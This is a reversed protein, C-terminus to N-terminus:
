CFWPETLRPREAVKGPSHLPGRSRSAAAVRASVELFTAEISASEAVRAAVLEAIDRQLRDVAPDASTWTYTLGEPDYAGLHPRLDPHDVLLSGQPLLLRITYQVPDVNGILDHDAVFALLDAVDEVSTWPTFPLWSPRIEIGHSRLLRVAEAAQATTHGKDLRALIEDNTTEFASVVFLCGCAAFTQWLEAHDLIHDVKTTCDFTLWPWRDHLERVLRLSHTPGNLFDPDGFTIHRAGMAVLQAIDALVLDRATARFRGGYVTPVPCHRCEHLCGQTAEVYGVLRQEGDIALRAYRELPPLLDRAPLEYATRDLFVAPLGASPQHTPRTTARGSSAHLTGGSALAEVWAVLPREYQGALVRDALAGATLDRSVPAYLGYFVIPLDPRVQKIARAARMSLRMATHMPVSFGVAEAWGVAQEDWGQVSTDLCAVEHGAARLAAAPSALHLPQHGLEYTSVLLVRM